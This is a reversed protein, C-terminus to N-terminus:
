YGVQNMMLSYDFPRIIQDYHSEDDADNVWCMRHDGVAYDPTSEIIWQGVRSKIFGKSVAYPDSGSLSPNIFVDTGNSLPLYLGAHVHGALLVDIRDVSPLSVNLNNIKAVLSSVNVSSGPSGTDLMTDGHTSMFTHGFVPFITYNYRSMLFEVRPEQRFAMQVAGFLMSSFSDFKQANARDRGKTTTIVRDHNGPTSPVIVKDYSGLLFDIADVIYRVAGLFQWTLLDQRNDDAHIAGQILDGGFNLIVGECEDRHDLKYDALSSVVKGLRRAATTWNYQNGEVELPDIDLGFHIDSLHGTVMRGKQKKRNSKVPTHKRTPGVPMMKIARGIVDEFRALRSAENGVQRQLRRVELNVNTLGRVNALEGEDGTQPWEARVIPTFGGSSRIEWESCTGGHKFYKATTMSGPTIGLSTAVRAIDSVVKSYTSVVLSNNDSASNKPKADRGSRSKGM